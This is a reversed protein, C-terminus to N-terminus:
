QKKVFPVNIIGFQKGTKAEVLKMEFTYQEADGIKEFYFFGSIESRNGLVGEPIALDLMEKTPMAIEKWCTYYHDFYFPDYYFSNRYGYLFPYYSAYYPAVYFGPCDFRSSMVPEEVVDKIAFPPLVALVKGTSDTLSFLSYSIKIPSKYDNKITLKLPTVYDKVQKDGAWANGSVSVFVNEISKEATDGTIQLSPAPALFPASACGSVLLAVLFSIVLFLRNKM